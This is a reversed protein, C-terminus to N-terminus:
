DPFGERLWSAQLEGDEETVSGSLWSEPLPDCGLDVVGCHMVSSGLSRKDGLPGKAKAPIRCRAVEAALFSM